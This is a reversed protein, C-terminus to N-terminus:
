KEIYKKINEVALEIETEDGTEMNKLKAIDESFLILLVIILIIRFLLIRKIPKNKTQNKKKM